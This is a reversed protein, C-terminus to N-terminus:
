WGRRSARRCRGRCPPRRARPAPDPGSPPPRRCHGRLMGQQLQAAHAAGKVAGGPGQGHEVPHVEGQAGPLGRGDGAGRAAALARQELEHAGEVPGVGPLHEKVARVRRAQRGAGERGQAVAGDAEDELEVVEQRLAGHQLVRQHGHQLAGAGGVGARAGERQQVAHAQGSARVVTGALQRAALALAGGHHAGEHVPRAEQQGVLRRARQVLGGGVGQRVQQHLELPVLAERQDDHGVGGGHGAAELGRALEALHAAIDRTVRASRKAPDLRHPDTFIARLTEAQAPLDALFIRHRQADPFDRYHRSGDFTAYLDFCHGIDCVILFPPPSDFTQAYGLAQGYAEQMALAWMATGRRATGLKTAGAESGQKAELIFCGQKYLDVKGTSIRGGEHPLIADKEFVYRDAEPDGTAPDPRPVGLLDCLELLFADKNAREASGSASWRAIFAQLQPDPPADTRPDPPEQM